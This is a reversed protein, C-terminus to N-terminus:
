STRIIDLLVQSLLRFQLTIGKRRNKRKRRRLVWIKEVLFSKNLKNDLGDPAEIFPTDETSVEIGNVKIGCFNLVQDIKTSGEVITANLIVNKGIVGGYIVEVSSMPGNHKAM